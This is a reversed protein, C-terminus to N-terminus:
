KKSLSYQDTISCTGLLDYGWQFTLTDPTSASVGAATVQGSSPTGPALLAACPLADSSFLIGVDVPDAIVDCSGSSSVVHITPSSTGYGPFTVTIPVTSRSSALGQCASPDFSADDTSSDDVPPAAGADTSRTDQGIFTDNWTASSCATSLAVVIYLLARM